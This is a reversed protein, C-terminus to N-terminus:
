FALTFGGISGNYVLVCNSLIDRGVLAQIGQVSLEAAMVPVAGFTLPVHQTSSGPIMLSVDYQEAVHPAGGTSPTHVPVSGTPTLNLKRM